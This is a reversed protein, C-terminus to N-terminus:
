GVCGSTPLSSPSPPAAGDYLAVALQQPCHQAGGVKVEFHLHPGTSNGTNGTLGLQDGAGVSQTGSFAHSSFHCYTYSVGGATLTVGHGCRDNTFASASGATVAYAPTGTPTPLDLAPYTHHPASYASRPLTERPIMPAWDGGGGGGGTGALAQWTAPGAVGDVALGSASQFERVATDTAPGFGADVGIGAGHKNLLTQLASVASGEDGSSLVVVLASWTAAGVVGDSDLAAGSQFSRVAGATGPGFQGDADAAHGHSALLHQVATVEAGSSGEQLVPWSAAVAPTQVSLGLSALLAVFAVAVAALPRHRRRRVHDPTATRLSTSM